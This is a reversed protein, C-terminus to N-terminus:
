KKCTEGVCTDCAEYDYDDDDDDYDDDDDDDDNNHERQRRECAKEGKEEQVLPSGWLVPKL